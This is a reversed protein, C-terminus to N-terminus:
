MGHSQMFCEGCFEPIGQRPRVAIDDSRTGETNFHDMLVQAISKANIREVPKEWVKGSFRCMISVVYENGMPTDKYPGSCDISLHEGPQLPQFLKLRKGRKPKGKRQKQCELCTKTFDQIDDAFGSWYFSKLLEQMLAKYGGHSGTFLNHHYYHLFLRRHAIPLVILLRRRYKYKLLGDEIVYRGKKVDSRINQQLDDIEEFDDTGLLHRRIIRLEIDKQQAKKLKRLDFEFLFDEAKNRAKLLEYDSMVEYDQGKDDLLQM